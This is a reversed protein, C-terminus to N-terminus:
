SAAALRLQEAQEVMALAQRGAETIVFREEAWRAEANQRETCAAEDSCWLRRIAGGPEYAHVQPEEVSGCYLCAGYVNPEPSDQRQPHYAM